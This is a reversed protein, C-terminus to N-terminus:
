IGLKKAQRWKTIEAALAWWPNGLVKFHSIIQTDMKYNNIMWRQSSIFTFLYLIHRYESIDAPGALFMQDIPGPIFIQNCLPVCKIVKLVKTQLFPHSYGLLNNVNVVAWWISLFCVLFYWGWVALNKILFSFLNQSNSRSSQRVWHHFGSQKM